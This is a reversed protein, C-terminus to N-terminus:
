RLKYHIPIITYYDAPIGNQKGPEFKPTNKFLDLAACALIKHVGDLISVLRLEGQINVKLKLYVKGTIGHERAYTPYMFKDRIFHFLQTKFDVRPENKVFPPTDISDIKNFYEKTQYPILDLNYIVTDTWYYKWNGVPENKVFYEESKLINNKVLYTEIGLTDNSYIKYIEKTKARKCKSAPKFNKDYCIEKVVTQGFTLYCFLHTFTILLTIKM